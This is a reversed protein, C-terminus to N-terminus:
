VCGGCCGSEVNENMVRLIDPLLKWIEPPYDNESGILEWDGHVIRYDSYDMKFRISGGSCWFRPYNALKEGEPLNWAETTQGFSVEKGDIKVVLKGSCLNPYKGNYSVFEIKESM